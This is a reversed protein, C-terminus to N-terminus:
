FFYFIGTDLQRTNFPLSILPPPPPSVSFLNIILNELHTTLHLPFECTYVKVIQCFGSDSAQSAIDGLQVLSVLYWHLILSEVLLFGLFEPPKAKPFHSYHTQEKLYDGGYM